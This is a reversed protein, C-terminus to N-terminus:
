PLYICFCGGGSELNHIETFGHRDAQQHLQAIKESFFLGLGTNGITFDIQTNIKEKTQLMFDPYGPGDDIVAIRLMNQDSVQAKLLIKKTAYRLTNNLVSNIVNKILEQDFYWDLYEDCDIDISLNRNAAVHQNELSLEELFDYVNYQDRNIAFLDTRMKYLTLMRMLSHNVSEIEYAVQHIASRLHEPLEPEVAELTSSSLLLSNKVDHVVSMLIATFDEENINQSTKM